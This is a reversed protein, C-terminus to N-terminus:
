LDVSRPTMRHCIGQLFSLPTRKDVFYFLLKNQDNLIPVSAPSFM